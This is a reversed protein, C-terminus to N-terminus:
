PNEVDRQQSHRAEREELREFIVKRDIVASNARKLYQGRLPNIGGFREASRPDTTEFEGASIHGKEPNNDQAVKYQRRPPRDFRIQGM